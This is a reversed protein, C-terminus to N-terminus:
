AAGQQARSYVFHVARQQQYSAEGLCHFQLSRFLNLSPENDPKIYAHFTRIEEPASNLVSRLLLWGFGGSRFDPDVSISIVAHSSPDVELRVQGLPRGNRTEGIYIHTHDDRLKDAFWRRHDSWPIPEQDFALQRVVPENAWRWLLRCDARECRRIRLMKGKLSRVVRHAGRGDIRRRACQAAQRRLKVDQHQELRSGIAAGDIPSDFAFYGPIRALEAAVPRQNDAVPIVLAPLQMFLLESCLGGATAIAVDAEAMLNAVRDVHGHFRFRQNATAVLDPDPPQVGVVDVQVSPDLLGGLKEVVRHMSHKPDAGSLVLLRQVVDRVERTWGRWEDFQPRLLSFRPGLLLKSAAIGTYLDADAYLNQNLVLDACDYDGGRDDICLLSAQLDDLDDRLSLRFSEEFAYGDLIVWDADLMAAIQSSMERDRSSGRVADICHMAFNRDAICRAMRPSLDTSAFHVSMGQERAKTALALCRMVHGSGITEDADARILLNM